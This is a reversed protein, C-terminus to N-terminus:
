GERRREKAAERMEKRIVEWEKKQEKTLLPDVQEVFAEQIGKAERLMGFRERRSPQEGLSGRLAKLKENREQVLPAIKAEQEPTLALRERLEEIKVQLAQRQEDTVEAARAAPAGVAGAIWAAVLLASLYRTKVLVRRISILSVGRLAVWRGGNVVKTYVEDRSSGARGGRMVSSDAGAPGAAGLRELRAAEM